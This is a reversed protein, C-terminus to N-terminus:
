IVDFIILNVREVLFFNSLFTRCPLEELLARPSAWRLEATDAREVPSRDTDDAYEWYEVADPTESYVSPM